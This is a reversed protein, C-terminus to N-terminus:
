QGQIPSKIQRRQARQWRTSQRGTLFRILGLLAAWNSNFLFTPLYLLRGFRGNALRGNALGGRGLLALGYFLAQAALLWAFLGTRAAPNSILLAVNTVLAGIMALPVLPRMFKHSFLQWLLLPRKWPLRRGSHALAQYRGAVIRVRRATEDAATPSVREYSRAQPAYVVRAGQQMVQMMLHFDDNIVAEPIPAFLRARVALIEGAVATCCGLRTEQRKIFSEYRWYLGESSGLAGDGQVIRKAGSVAGVTADAFPAALRRLAQPDYLNNADSFVLIEGHAQAAARNLAATKGRRPPAHLVTVGRDAYQQALRVTDDTSGDAAVIIQLRDRPYDLLLSNTLKADIVAAENYAAIILTLSPLPAADPWTPDSRRGLLGLLLPYGVYVYAVFGVCAWFLVATM